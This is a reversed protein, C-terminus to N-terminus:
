KRLRKKTHNNGAWPQKLIKKGVSTKSTNVMMNTHKNAKKIHDRSPYSHQIVVRRNAKVFHEVVVTVVTAENFHFVQAPVATHAYPVPAHIETIYM